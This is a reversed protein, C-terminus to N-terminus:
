TGPIGPFYTAEGGEDPFESLTLDLDPGKGIAAASSYAKAKCIMGDPRLIDNKVPGQLTSPDLIIANLDTGDPFENRMPNLCFLSPGRMVAVRGQQKGFGKVLRWDMAMKLAITDGNRWEREMAVFGNKDHISVLENNIEIRFKECWAPIRLRLPFTAAKSPHLHIRVHGSNPYDTDQHVALSVGPAIETTLRSTTYLNVALGGPSKYYVMKPLESIIRRYNNPCCYTDRDWYTRKGEFPTYYRLRRGDPSQAAFLANYVAREMMDAYSAKGELRLLADLLRILYATACTEELEGKGSQDSHWCESLSCSGTILLGGKRTLFDLARRTQSLLKEDKRIHYLELQTLCRTLFAYAHGQIRGHRGEVIDLDWNQLGFDKDTQCFDLYRSDSTAKYLALMARQLNITSLEPCSNVALLDSRRKGTLNMLIYDGAGRAAELSKQEGFHRYDSALAFIIYSMEHVDWLKSIRNEPSHMGIYGDPLQAKIIENIVHRKMSLRTADQAYYAYHVLADVLKGLGIYGGEATKERFPRLFDKDIDLALINKDWTLDIREGILGEIKIDKFDIPQLGFGNTARESINM